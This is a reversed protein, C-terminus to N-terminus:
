LNRILSSGHWRNLDRKEPLPLEPEERQNSPDTFIRLRRFARVPM